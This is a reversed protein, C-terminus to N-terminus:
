DTIPRNKLLKAYETRVAPQALNIPLRTIRRPKKTEYLRNKHPDWEVFLDGQYTALNEWWQGVLHRRQNDADELLGICWNHLNADDGTMSPPKDEKSRRISIKPM